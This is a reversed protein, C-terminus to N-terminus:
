ITIIYDANLGAQYVCAFWQGDVLLAMELKPKENSAFFNWNGSIASPYQKKFESIIKTEMSSFMALGM